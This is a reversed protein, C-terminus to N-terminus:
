RQAEKADRAMQRLYGSMCLLLLIMLAEAM